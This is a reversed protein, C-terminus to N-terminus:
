KQHDHNTSRHSVNIPNKTIASPNDRKEIAREFQTKEHEDPRFGLKILLQATDIKNGSLALAFCSSIRLNDLKSFDKGHRESNINILKEVVNNHGNQCAIQLPTLNRSDTEELSLGDRILFECIEANGLEASFHLANMGAQPKDSAVKIRPDFGKSILLKTAELNNEKVAIHLLTLGDKNTFNTNRCENLLYELASLDRTKVADEMKKEDLLDLLKNTTNPHNKRFAMYIPTTNYYPEFLSLGGDKVLSECIEPNGIEVALHLANKRAHPKNEAIKINPNVGKTILLKIAELNSEKVAIHLLNLGDQDTFNKHPYHDLFSGLAPLDKNKLADIMNQEIKPDRFSFQYTAGREALIRSSDLSNNQLAHELLNRRSYDQKNIDHGFTDLFYALSQANNSLATNLLFIPNGHKDHLSYIKAFLDVPMTKYDKASSSSKEQM